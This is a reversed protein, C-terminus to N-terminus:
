KLSGREKFYGRLFSGANPPKSERVYGVCRLVLVVRCLVQVSPKQNEGPKEQHLLYRKEFLALGPVM